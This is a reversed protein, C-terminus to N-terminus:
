LKILQDIIRKCEGVMFDVNKYTADKQNLKYKDGLISWDSIHMADFGIYVGDYFTIGGHVNINTEYYLEDKGTDHVKVYGCLHGM